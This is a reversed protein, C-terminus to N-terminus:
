AHSLVPFMLKHEYFLQSKGTQIFLTEDGVVEKAVYDILDKPTFGLKIEDIKSNILVAVVEDLSAQGISFVDHLVLTKNDFSAVAIVDLAKLYYVNDKYFSTCYFMVLDANEQMALKGLSKSNKAYYYLLDRSQQKAIDLQAFELNNGAKGEVLRSHAYEQVVTFGFKPYLDLVSNNAFLYIFDCNEEWTQLVQEMLFKSLGKHRYAADTMVTGIQIYRALEGVANFDMINVSVNAIAKDENFLTYPIYKEHWYGAQYWAEFSLGFINSALNNFSERYKADKQYGVLFVYDQNVLSIQL